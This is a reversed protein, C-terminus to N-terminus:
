HRMNQSTRDGACEAAGEVASKRQPLEAQNPRNPLRAAELKAAVEWFYCQSPTVAAYGLLSNIIKPTPSTLYLKSTPRELGYFEKLLLIGLHSLAIYQFSMDNPRVLIGPILHDPFAEPASVWLDRLFIGNQETGGIIAGKKHGHAVKIAAFLEHDIQVLNNILM